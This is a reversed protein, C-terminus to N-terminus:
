EKKPLFINYGILITIPDTSSRCILKEKWCIIKRCFWIGGGRHRLGKSGLTRLHPCNYFCRLFCVFCPNWFRQSCLKYYGDPGVLWYFFRKKEICQHRSIRNIFHIVKFLHSTNRFDTKRVRVLIYRSLIGHPIRWVFRGSTSRISKLLKM